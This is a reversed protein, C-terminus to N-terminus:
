NVFIMHEFSIIHMHCPKSKYAAVKEIVRRKKYKVKEKQKSSVQAYIFVIRLANEHKTTRYLEIGIKLEIHCANIM